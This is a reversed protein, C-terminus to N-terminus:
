RFRAVNGAILVPSKRFTEFTATLASDREEVTEYFRNHTTAKRTAKWVGETPNLHPSYPPLRHLEIRHRNAALWARGPANAKDPGQGCAVVAGVGLGAGIAILGLINLHSSM